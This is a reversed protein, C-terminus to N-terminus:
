FRTLLHARSAPPEYPEPWYETFTGILGDSDLTFFTLGPVTEGDVSFAIRTAGGSADVHEAMVVLSWDGPYSAMFRVLAERGTVRERSQPWTGVVDASVLTALREWDRAQTAAWYEGFIAM